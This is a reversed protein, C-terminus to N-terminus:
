EDSKRSNLFHEATRRLALEVTVPPQWGLLTRAKSIDVQLSACLRQSLDERGLMRAGWELLGQPVPVLRAPVHLAHAMRRLLDTTSIDEGDSVLFTQNAAAPHDLCTCIFDVLNDLAVLSRQNHIAGLPLPVGKSLWHMMSLFNAKVGPGYVLPPRIIVVEMGTEVAIDLLLKEAERKSATYIDKSDSVDTENLPSNQTSEGCVKATSLYVFRRVGKEAAQRAIRAAGLANVEQYNNQNDRKLKSPVHALAALHIVTDVGALAGGWETTSGIEGVSVVEASPHVHAGGRTVARVVRNEGSLEACLARGIFGTAGTVLIVARVRDYM